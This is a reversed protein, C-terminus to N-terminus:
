IHYKNLVEQKKELETLNSEFWKLHAFNFNEIEDKIKKITIIEGYFFKVTGNKMIPQPYSKLELNQLDKILQPNTLKGLFKTKILYDRHKINAKYEEFDEKYVVKNVKSILNEYDSTIKKNADELKEIRKMLDKKTM